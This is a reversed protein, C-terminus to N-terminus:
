WIIDKKALALMAEASPVELIEVFDVEGQTYYVADVAIGLQDLKAHVQRIREDPADAWKPNISGLVVDFLGKVIPVNNHVELWLLSGGTSDDFLNFSIDVTDKVGLGLTDTVKGQYTILRPVAFVTSFLNLVLFVVVIRRM